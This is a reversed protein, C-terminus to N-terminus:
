VPGCQQPPGVALRGRESRWGIHPSSAKSSGLLRTLEDLPDGERAVALMENLMEQEIRGARRLRWAGAVIRHALMNELEGDPDLREIMTDRFSEFEERSEGGLVIDSALLGHKISNRSAKAKGAPTIPGTSEEANRRNAATQKDTTKLKQKAM